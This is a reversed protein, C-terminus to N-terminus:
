FDLLDKLKNECAKFAKEIEMTNTNLKLLSDSDDIKGAADLMAFNEINNWEDKVVKALKLMEIIIGLTKCSKADLFTKSHFKKVFSQHHSILETIKKTKAINIDFQHSLGSLMVMLRNHITNIAQLMSFRTLSLRKMVLNLMNLKAYPARHKFFDPFILSNLLQQSWKIKLLFRFVTPLFITLYFLLTMCYRIL